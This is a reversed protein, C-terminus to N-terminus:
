KALHGLRRQTDSVFGEGPAYTGPTTTRVNRNDYHSAPMSNTLSTKGGTQKKWDLYKLYSNYTDVMSNAARNNAKFAVIEALSKPAISGAQNIYNEATQMNGGKTAMDNAIERYGVTRMLAPNTWAKAPLNKYLSTLQRNMNYQGHLQRAAYDAAKETDRVKGSSLIDIMQAGAQGALIAPGIYPTVRGGALAARGLMNPIARPVAPGYVDKIATLIPHAAPMSLGVSLPIYYPRAKPTDYGDFQKVGQSGLYAQLADQYTM